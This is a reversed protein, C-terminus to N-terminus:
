IQANQWQYTSKEKDDADEIFDSLDLIKVDNPTTSDDAILANNVEVNIEILTNEIFCIQIKKDRDKLSAQCLNKMRFTCM